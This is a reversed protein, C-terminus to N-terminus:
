KYDCLMLCKQNGSVAGSPRAWPFSAADSACRRWFQCCWTPRPNSPPVTTNSANHVRAIVADALPVAAAGPRFTLCFAPRFAGDQSRIPATEARHQGVLRRPQQRHVRGM